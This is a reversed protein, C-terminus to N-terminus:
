GRRGDEADDEADMRQTMKVALRMRLALWVLPAAWRGPARTHQLFYRFVSDHFARLSAVPAHRSSRGAVHHVSVGPHYVTRWGADHLRRCLDADEWYLFYGEDFGGVQDFARRRVLMCAGSVWDVTMPERVHPGTLLNRSTLRNGPLVRTLWTSRGGLVTSVGPFRRASAQISGDADRVLPGVVAVDPREELLALLTGVIPGDVVADPNILLLYDAATERAGRNIGAGFGRNDACALLRVEPHRARLARAEDVRTEHDVVVLEVSPEAAHLAALCRDLEEYAHYNVIVAAVARREGAAAATM